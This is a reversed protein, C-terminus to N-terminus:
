TPVDFQTFRVLLKRLNNKNQSHIANDVLTSDKREIYKSVQNKNKSIKVNHYKWRNKSRKINSVGIYM